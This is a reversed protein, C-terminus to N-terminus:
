SKMIEQNFHNGEIVGPHIKNAYELANLLSSATLEDEKSAGLKRMWEDTFTNDFQICPHDIPLTLPLGHTCQGGSGCRALTELTTVKRGFVRFEDHFEDTAKAKAKRAKGKLKKRSPM